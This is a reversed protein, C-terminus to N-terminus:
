RSTGTPENQDEQFSPRFVGLICNLDRVAIQIHTQTRLKSGPFAADGEEFASRVTQFAAEPRKSEIAARDAVEMAQDVILRDLKRSFGGAAENTPLSVNTDAYSKAVKTYSTRLLTECGPDTLDFCNGLQILAGIVEGDEGAWQRARKPGYEWFYVGGGLWDYENSSPRWDNVLHTGAILGRVFQLAKPRDVPCGHYGMVIRGFQNM